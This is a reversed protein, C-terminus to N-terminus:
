IKQIFCLAYYAPMNNIAVGQGKEAISINSSVTSSIFPGLQEDVTKGGTQLYAQTNNNPPNGQVGGQRINLCSAHTHGPDYVSPWGNPMNTIQLPLSNNGGQSNLNFPGVSKDSITSATNSAAVIFRSRLDVTGPTTGDCLVWGHPIDAANGSWIM